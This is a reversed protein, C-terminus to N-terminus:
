RGREGSSSGENRNSPSNASRPRSGDQNPQGSEAAGAGAETALRAFNVTFTEVAPISRGEPLTALTVEILAPIAQLQEPWETTWQKGDFFRLLFVDINEAIPTLVGGPERERDPNPWLRRYLTSPIAEETLDMQENRRLLYEVEYVDGEPQGIRAKTRGLVYFRLFAPQEADDALQSAGVLRMSRRDRDRYLNALDRAMLRAAFRLEASTESTRDVVQASDSVAKLAGVAVLTVFASITSAVLVEALTFGATKRRASM